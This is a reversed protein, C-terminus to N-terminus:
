ARILFEVAFRARIRSFAGTIHRLERVAAFRDTVAGRCSVVGGFGIELVM